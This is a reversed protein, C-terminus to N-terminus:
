VPQLYRMVAQNSLPAAQGLRSFLTGLPQIFHHTQQM